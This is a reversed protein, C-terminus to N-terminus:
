ISNNPRYALNLLTGAKIRQKILNESYCRKIINNQTTDTTLPVRRRRCDEAIWFFKGYM